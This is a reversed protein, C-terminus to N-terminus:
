KTFAKEKSFYFFIPPLYLIQSHRSNIQCHIDGGGKEGGIGLAGKRSRPLRTPHHPHLAPERLRKLNSM